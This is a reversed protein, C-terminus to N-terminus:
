RSKGMDLRAELEEVRIRLRRMFDRIQVMRRMIEQFRAIEADTNDVLRGMSDYAWLTATSGKETLSQLEDLIRGTVM